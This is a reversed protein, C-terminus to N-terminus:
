PTYLDSPSGYEFEARRGLDATMASICAQCAGCPSNDPERESCGVAGAPCDHGVAKTERCWPCPRMDAVPPLEAVTLAAVALGEGLDTRVAGCGTCAVLEDNAAHPRVAGCSPCWVDIVSM